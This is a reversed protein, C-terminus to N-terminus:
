EGREEHTHQWRQVDTTAIEGSRQPRSCAITRVPM